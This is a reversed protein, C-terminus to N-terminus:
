RNLSQNGTSFQLSITNKGAHLYQPDILLHEQILKVPIKKNNVQIGHVKDPSQKFDLQLPVNVDKLVLDISETAEIAASKDAPIDFNLTYQLGSITTHRYRALALSVGPEVLPKTDQAFSTIGCFMLLLTLRVSLKKLSTM